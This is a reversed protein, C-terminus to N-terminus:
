HTQIGYERGGFSGKDFPQGSSHRKMLKQPEKLIQINAPFSQVGQHCRHLAQSRLEDSRDHILIVANDFSSENKMM